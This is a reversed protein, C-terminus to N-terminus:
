CRNIGETCGCGYQCSAPDTRDAECSVYETPCARTPFCAPRGSVQHAEVTGTGRTATATAFSEVSLEDLKLQMKRM